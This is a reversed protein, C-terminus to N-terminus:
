ASAAAVAESRDRYLRLHTVKGDGVRALWASRADVAAGSARGQGSVRVFAVVRDDGPARLEEIEVRFGGWTEAIESRFRRAGELGRYVAPNLVRDSADIEVDPSFYTPLEDDESRNWAEFGRRVIEANDPAM